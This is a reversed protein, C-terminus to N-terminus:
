RFIKLDKLCFPSGKEGFYDWAEAEPELDWPAVEKVFDLEVKGQVAPEKDLVEVMLEHLLDEM